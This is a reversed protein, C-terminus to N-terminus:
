AAAPTWRPPPLLIRPSLGAIPLDSGAAPAQRAGVALTATMATLLLHVGSTAPASDHQEAVDPREDALDFSPASGTDEISPDFWSTSRDPDLYFGGDGLHHHHVSENAADIWLQILSHGHATEAGARYDSPLLLLGLLAMGWILKSLAALGSDSHRRVSRIAAEQVPM